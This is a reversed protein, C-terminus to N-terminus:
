PRPSNLDLRLQYNPEVEWRRVQQKWAKMGYRQWHVDCYPVADPDYYRVTASCKVCERGFFRKVLEQPTSIVEAWRELDRRLQGKLSPSRLVAAPHVTPMVVRDRWLFLQGHSQTVQLDNRFASLAVAGALLVFPSRVARLQAVLHTRCWIQEDRTPARTAVQQGVKRKPRCCVVNMWALDDPEVGAEKLLARLVKGSPGVFPRGRREEEPGPAEGLVIGRATVPTQAMAPETPTTAEPMTAPVPTCGPLMTDHLPCRTCSIIQQRVQAWNTPQWTPPRISPPEPTPEIAPPEAM